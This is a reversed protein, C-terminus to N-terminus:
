WRPSFLNTLLLVNKKNQLCHYTAHRHCRLLLPPLPPLVAAAALKAAFTATQHFRLKLPLLLANPLAAAAHPHRRCCRPTPPPLM